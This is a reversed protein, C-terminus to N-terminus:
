NEQILLNRINNQIGSSLMRGYLERFPQMERKISTTKPTLSRIKAEVKELDYDCDKIVLEMMYDKKNSHHVSFEDQKIAEDFVTLIPNANSNLVSSLKNDQINLLNRIQEMTGINLEFRTKDKLQELLTQKDYLLGLFEKNVAKNLEKAKDYVCLRKKYKPTKVKNAIVIGNGEYKTSGWKDFNTLNQKIQKVEQLPLRVDHTVDCKVVESDELIGDVDIRCIQLDNIADFCKRINTLNILKPYDDMLIKGVFEISLENKHVDAQIILSFPSTQRYKYYLVCDGKSEKLFINTNIDSIHNIGTVIKLKDFKLM